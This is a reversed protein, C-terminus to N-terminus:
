KRKKTTVTGDIPRGREAMVKRVYEESYQELVESKAQAKPPLSLSILFRICDHWGAQRDHSAAALMLHDTASHGVSDSQRPLGRDKVLDIALALPGSALLEQLKLANDPTNRWQDLTIM